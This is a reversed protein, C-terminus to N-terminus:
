APGGARAPEPEEWALVHQVGAPPPCGRSTLGVRAVGLVAYPPPLPAGLDMRALAALIRQRQAPGFAPPVLVGATRVGVSQGDALLAEALSGLTAVAEEAQQFAAQRALTKAQGSSSAKKKRWPWRSRLGTPAREAQAKKTDAAKLAPGSTTRDKNQASLVARLGTFQLELMVIHSAQAETERVTWRGTKAVHKWAVHRLDDGERYPRLAYFDEGPGAKGTPADGLRTKLQRQMTTVDRSKPCVWFDQPEALPLWRTKEFFGFPYATMVEFGMLRHGGRVAPYFPARPAVQEGASLRLVYPAGVRTVDHDTLTVLRKGLELPSLQGWPSQPPVLVAAIEVGFSPFRISQNEIRLPLPSLCDARLEDHDLVKVTIKRLTAESLIGSVVIASLLLGWGFFLLNNGTNM